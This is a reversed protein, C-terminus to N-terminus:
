AWPSHLDTIMNEIWLLLVISANCLANNPKIYAPDKDENFYHLRVVDVWDDTAPESTM